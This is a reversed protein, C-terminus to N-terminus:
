VDTLKKHECAWRSYLELNSSMCILVIRTRMLVHGLYDSHNPLFVEVRLPFPKLFSFKRMRQIENPLGEEFLKYKSSGM